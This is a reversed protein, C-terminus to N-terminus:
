STNISLKYAIAIDGHDWKLIKYDKDNYTLFCMASVPDPGMNIAVSSQGVNHIKCDAISHIHSPNSKDKIQNLSKAEPVCGGIRSCDLHQHIRVLARSSDLNELPEPVQLRIRNSVESCRRILHIELFQQAFLEEGVLVWKLHFLLLHKPKVYIDDFDKRIVGKKLDKRKKMQTITM